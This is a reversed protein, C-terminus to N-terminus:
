FHNIKGDNHWDYGSPIIYQCLRHSNLLSCSFPTATVWLGCQKQLPLIEFIAVCKHYIWRTPPKTWSNYTGMYQSKWWGLQSEHKESPNFGGVLWVYEINLILLMLRHKPNIIYFNWCIKWVGIIYRPYCPGRVLWWTNLLWHEYRQFITAPSQLQQAPPATTWHTTDWLPCIETSCKLLKKQM